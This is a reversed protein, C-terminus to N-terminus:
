GRTRERGPATQSWAGILGVCAAFTRTRDLEAELRSLLTEMDGVENTPLDHKEMEPYLTCFLDYVWRRINPSNGVPIEITMKPIPLAADLFAQYLLHEMHMNAGSREFVQHILSTCKTWLPLPATLQLLPAWYCEQIAIIGGPRVLKALSRLVAGPDPVFFLILRGVVADFPKGNLESAVHGVDTEVFSVNRLQAEAVRSRAAVLTNADREVGVVEGTPGVLEAVLMAVDGVGSGIDLVRRGPSIGASRFLRETFPNFIRSQRILREHERGTAGLVYSVASPSMAM